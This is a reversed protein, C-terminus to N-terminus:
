MTDPMTCLRYLKPSVSMFNAPSSFIFRECRMKWFNWFIGLAMARILLRLVLSIQKKEADTRRNEMLMSNRDLGRSKM